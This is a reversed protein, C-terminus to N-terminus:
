VVVPSCHYKVIHLHQNHQAQSDGTAMAAALLTLQYSPITFIPEDPGQGLSLPNTGFTNVTGLDQSLFNANRPM